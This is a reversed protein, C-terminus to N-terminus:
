TNLLSSDAAAREALLLAQEMDVWGAPISVDSDRLRHLMDAKESGTVVWPKRHTRNFMPFTLTMRWWEQYINPPAVDTDTM